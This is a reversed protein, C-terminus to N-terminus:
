GAWLSGEPLRPGGAENLATQSWVYGMCFLTLTDGDVNQGIAEIIAPDTSPLPTGLLINKPLQNVPASIEAFGTPSGATATDVTFNTQWSLGSWGMEQTKVVFRRTTSVGSQIVWIQGVHYLLAQLPSAAAQFQLQANALGGSVNMIVTSSGIWLGTPRGVGTGGAWPLRQIPELNVITM